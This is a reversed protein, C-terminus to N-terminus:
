LRLWWRIEELFKLREEEDLLVNTLNVTKRVARDAEIRKSVTPTISSALYMTFAPPHKNLTEDFTKKAAGYRELAGAEDIGGKIEIIGVLKGEADWVAVDPESGFKIQGKNTTVFGQIDKASVKQTPKTETGNFLVAKKMLSEEFFYKTLIAKVQRAAEEGVRNRWSGDIQTGATAYLLMMADVASYDADSDVIASIVENITKALLSAREQSLKAVKGTELQTTGFALKALGKQPLGAVCRYYTILRPNERIADPHCFISIPSIKNKKLYQWATKSIGLAELRQWTYKESKIVGVTEVLKEFEGEQLKRHSFLSRLGYSTRQAEKLLDEDRKM